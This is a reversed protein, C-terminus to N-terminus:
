HMDSQRDRRRIFAYILASALSLPLLWLLAFLGFEYRSGGQLLLPSHVLDQLICGRGHCKFGYAEPWGIKNSLWMSAAAWLLILLVTGTALLWFRLSGLAERAGALRVKLHRLFRWFVFLLWCISISLALGGLLPYSDMPAGDVLVMFPLFPVAAGLISIPKSNAAIDRDVWETIKRVLWM